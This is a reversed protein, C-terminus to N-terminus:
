VALRSPRRSWALALPGLLGVAALSAFALGWAGVQEQGGAADLVVGFALPGLFGATFGLLSHLAMTAGRRDEASLVAGTTLAASDLQIAGSHILSLLAVLAYPWAAAFGITASLAASAVMAWACFRARGVRTAIDAGLISTAMAVLAGATAVTTPSWPVAATGAAFTLFAVLWSRTGFLEWCHVTYGLIFGM